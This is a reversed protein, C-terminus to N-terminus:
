KPVLQYGRTRVTKIEYRSGQQKMKQRVRAVLRDIAWDSVGFEQSEPWVAEIIEERDCIHDQHQELLTFLAHEKRSFYATVQSVVSGQSEQLTAVYAEFLPSFLSDDKPQRVIFGTDWLYHSETREVETVPDGRKVKLLIAQEEATLSEWLEESQLGIREDQLLVEILQEKTEVVQKKEHLIIVGLQLYQVYGNVVSLLNRTTDESLDLNYREIYPKFINMMDKESARNIYMPKSFLALSARPFVTPSLKHLSRYSTFVYALKYHTADRLGQLNNFFEPTIADKMRDFRIFFITPLYGSDLIRVLAERVSDTAFFLDKTQITKLFLTDIAKKQKAPMATNEVVDAIRKLTLTWFPLMELEVLDNLDVPIFLHRNQDAVYTKVVSKHHLFFRLFNSIGVRKMGMLGVSDRRRIHEGLIRADEKRFDLPYNAEIFSTIMGNNYFTEPSYDFRL